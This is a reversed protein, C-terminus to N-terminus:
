YSGHKAEEEAWEKQEKRFWESHRERRVVEAAKLFRPNQDLISLHPEPLHIIDGEANTCLNVLRILEWTEGTIVSIPCALFKLDGLKKGM